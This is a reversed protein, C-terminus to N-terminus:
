VIKTRAKDRSFTQWTLNPHPKQLQEDHWSTWVRSSFCWCVWCQYLASAQSHERWKLLHRKVVGHWVLCWTPCDFQVKRPGYFSPALCLTLLRSINWVETSSGEFSNAVSPWVKRRRDKWFKCHFCSIQLSLHYAKVHKQRIFLVKEWLPKAVSCSQLVTSNKNRM